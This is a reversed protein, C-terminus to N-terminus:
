EKLDEIFIWKGKKWKLADHTMDPGYYEYFGQFKPKEPALHDWIIMKEKGHWELSMTAQNNYEFILRKYKKNKIEFPYGLDIKNNNIRFVEIIKKNTRFDNGDWGILTYFTNKKHKLTIIRYYICGFWNEPTLNKNEPNQIEDSTDILKEFYFNDDNDFYQVYGYYKFGGDDFYNNWTIVRIKKDSSFLISAYDNIINLSDDFSNKDNLLVLFLSDIKNATNIRSNEDKQNQLSSFYDRIAVLQNDALQESQSFSFQFNFIFFILFLKVFIKYDSM